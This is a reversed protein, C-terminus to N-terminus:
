SIMWNWKGLVNERLVHAVAILQVRVCLLQKYWVVWCWLKMVYFAQMWHSVWCCNIHELVGYFLHGM